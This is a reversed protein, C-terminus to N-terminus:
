TITIRNSFQIFPVSYFNKMALRLLFAHQRVTVVVVCSHSIKILLSTKNKLLIVIHNRHDNEM